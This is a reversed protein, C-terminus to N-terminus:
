IFHYFTHFTHTHPAHAHTQKPHTHTCTHTHTHMCTHTHAHMHTHTNHTHPTTTHTTHSLSLSINLLVRKKLAKHLKSLLFFVHIMLYQLASTSNIDCLYKLLIIKMIEERVTHRLCVLVTQSAPAYITYHSAVPQVTPNSSWHPALSKRKRMSTEVLGPAKHVPRVAWKGPLVANLAHLRDGMAM